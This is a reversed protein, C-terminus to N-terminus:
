LFLEPLPTLPTRILLLIHGNILIPPKELESFGISLMYMFANQLMISIGWFLRAILIFRMSTTPTGLHDETIEVALVAGCLELRPITHGHLPAVKAKGLVFGLQNTGNEALMKLYGVAAIAKESAHSFIHVERYAVESFSLSSFTHPIRLEQLRQLSVRWSEWDSLM